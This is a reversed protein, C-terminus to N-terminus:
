SFFDFYSLLDFHSVVIVAVVAVLVVAVGMPVVVRGLPYDWGGIRTSLAVTGWMLAAEILFAGGFVLTGLALPAGSMVVLVSGVVLVGILLGAFIAIALLAMGTSPKERGADDSTEAEMVQGHSNMTDM